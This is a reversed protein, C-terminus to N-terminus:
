ILEFHEKNYYFLVYCIEYTYINHMYIYIIYMAYINIYYCCYYHNNKLAIEGSLM